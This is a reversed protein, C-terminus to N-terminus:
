YLQGEATLEKLYTYIKFNGKRLHNSTATSYLGIITKYKWYLMLKCSMIDLVCKQTDMPYKHLNM